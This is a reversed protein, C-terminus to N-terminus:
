DNEPKGPAVLTGERWRRQVDPLGDRFWKLSTLFRDDDQEEVRVTAVYYFYVFGRDQQTAALLEGIGKLPLYDNDGNTFVWGDETYERWGITGAMPAADRVPRPRNMVSGNAAARVKGLPMLMQYRAEPDSMWELYVGDRLIPKGPVLASYGERHLMAQATAVRRARSEADKRPADRMEAFTAIPDRVVRFSAAVRQIQALGTALDVESAVAHWVIQLRHPPDIYFYMYSPESKIGLVYSGKWVTLMGSGVSEHRIQKRSEYSIDMGYPLEEYEAATADPAMLAVIMKQKYRTMSGMSAWFFTSSFNWSVRGMVGQRPVPNDPGKLASPVSIRAIDALARGTIRPQSTFLAVVGLLLTIASRTM